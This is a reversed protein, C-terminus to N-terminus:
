KIFKYIFLGFKAISMMIPKHIKEFRGFEVLKGGFSLKFDRVGYPVGPKGAGGFDYIKYNNQVGWKILEWPLNDNPRFKLFDDKAGAYWDYIKFNFCLAYRVAILEDGKFLGLALLNNGHHVKANRFFSIDHLPIKIRKYVESLILYSAILLNEDALDIEKIQFKENANIVKNIGRRRKPNVEQWLQNEGKELEFLIDLHANYKFGYKLFSEKQDDVDWQNRFDSYIAKNKIENNYGKLLLDLVEKDENLVLPGGFIIARSSFEGLLGSFVKQIVTLQLALIKDKEVVAILHPKYNKTTKYVEFMAPTQFINGQPHVNVFNNWKVTDLNNVLIM